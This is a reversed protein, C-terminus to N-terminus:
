KVESAVSREDNPLEPSCIAATGDVKLIKWLVLLLASFLEYGSIFDSKLVVASLSIKGVM